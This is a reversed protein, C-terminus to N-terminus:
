QATKATEVAAALLLQLDEVKQREGQVLAELKPNKGHAAALMDAAKPVISKFFEKQNEKDQAWILLARQSETSNEEDGFGRQIHDYVHMVDDAWSLEIHPKNTAM